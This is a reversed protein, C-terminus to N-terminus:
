YRGAKVQRYAKDAQPAFMDGDKSLAKAFKRSRTINRRETKSLRNDSKNSM